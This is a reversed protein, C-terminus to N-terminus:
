YEYPIGVISIDDGPDRSILSRLSAPPVDEHLFHVAGDCTIVLAGGRTFGGLRPVTADVAYRIDVPKTWPERSRSEAVM